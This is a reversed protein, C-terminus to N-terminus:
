SLLICSNETSQMGDFFLKEMESEKDRCKIRADM